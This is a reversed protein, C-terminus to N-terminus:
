LRSKLKDCSIYIGNKEIKHITILYRNNEKNVGIFKYPLHLKEPLEYVNIREKEELLTITNGPDKNVNFLKASRTTLLRGDWALDGQGIEMLYYEVDNSDPHSSIRITKSDNFDYIFAEEHMLTYNIDFLFDQNEDEKNLLMNKTIEEYAIKDLEHKAISDITLKEDKETLWSKFGEDPFLPSAGMIRTGEPVEVSFVDDEVKIGFQAKVINIERERVVSGDRYLKSTFRQPLCFDGFKKYNEYKNERSLVGDYYDVVSVCRYGVGPDIKINRVHQKGQDPKEIRVDIIKKGGEAVESIEVKKTGEIHNLWPSASGLRDDRMDYGSKQGELAKVVMVTKSEISCNFFVRGNSIQTSCIDSLITGDPMTFTEKALDTRDIRYSTRNNDFIITKSFIPNKKRFVIMNDRGPIKQVGTPLLRDITSEMLEIKGTVPVHSEDKQVLKSIDELTMKENSLGTQTFIFAPFMFLYLLQKNFM